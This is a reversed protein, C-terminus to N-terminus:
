LRRHRWLPLGRPSKLKEVLKSIVYDTYRITNDYSNKIQEITCNEIDARPCDPQFFAHESPYRQFYTPGHSGIVHMLMVRNGQMSGVEQEFNELLAMDYCTSGNCLSDNRGREVEKKAINKAVGKDGGDNELWLLDVQARKLIDLVNDQNDAIERSYNDHNMASFLCPVSVATATGCSSVDRFSVMDLPQTYANTQRSYGNAQYEQSRATEGLVFVMLTPKEKAAELAQQSQKADVGLQKYVIPETLYTKNVYKAVSYVWQTPVIMQRLYANNRGVSAYDQYYLGAIVGIVLLSALMSGMKKLVLSFFSHPKEIPFLILLLAPVLGMLTLWAVSYGSIYASAEGSDTEVINAVMNSDFLTGYNFGVYSVAASIVLM